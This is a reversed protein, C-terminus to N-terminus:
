VRISRRKRWGRRWGGTGNGVFYCDEIYVGEGSGLNAHTEFSVDGNTGGGWGDAFIQVANKFNRTDFVCHDVVGWANRFIIAGTSPLYFKLHDARVLRSTGGFV